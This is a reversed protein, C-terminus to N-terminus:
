CWWRICCSIMALSASKLSVGLDRKPRFADPVGPVALFSVVGAAWSADDSAAAARIFAWSTSSKSSSTLRGYSALWSDSILISFPLGSFAGGTAPIIYCRM